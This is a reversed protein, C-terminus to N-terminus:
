KAQSFHRHGELRLLHAKTHTGGPASFGGLQGQAGLVRHCPIILPLPNRAMATGVARAAGPSGVQVALKRYNTLAGFPVQRLQNYVKQRFPTVGHWDIPWDDFSLGPEGAFYRELCSTMMNVNFWNISGEEEASHGVTAAPPEGPKPSSLDPLSLSRLGVSSVQVWVTGWSTPCPFTQVDHMTM